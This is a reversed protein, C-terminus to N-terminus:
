TSSTSCSWRRRTSRASARARASPRFVVNALREGPQNPAALMMNDIVPMAALAKTIQFTRVMGCGRSRTRRARGSERATSRRARRRGPPLLRHDPQLLDDQRRRQARDPRHDIGREVDMTAGNVARIGGFRKVIGDAEFIKRGGNASGSESAPTADPAPAPEDTM